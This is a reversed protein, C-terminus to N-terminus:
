TANWGRFCCILVAAIVWLIALFAPQIAARWQVASIGGDIAAVLLPPLHTELFAGSIGILGVRQATFVILAVAMAYAMATLSASRQTPVLLSIICGVGFAGMAAIFVIAVFLPERTLEPEALIGGMTALVTGIPVFVLAKALLMELPVAPSLTQALLTGQEREECTLSPMLCICVFFVAFLILAVALAKPLAVAHLSSREVAFEPITTANPALALLQDRYQRHLDQMLKAPDGGIPPPVLREVEARRGEPASRIAQQHFFRRSESWFWDEFPALVRSDEGPHWFWIRWLEGERRLQVAGDSKAYQLTGGRDTPIEAVSRFRINLGPPVRDRLHQVWPGDEWYDVWFISVRTAGIAVPGARNVASVLLAAALLLFAMLIAGRNLALRHLEKGALTQIRRLNM